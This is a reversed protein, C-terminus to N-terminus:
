FFKCVLWVMVAFIAALIAAVVFVGIRILKLNCANKLKLYYEKEELTLKRKMPRWQEDTKDDVPENDFIGIQAEIETLEEEWTCRRKM